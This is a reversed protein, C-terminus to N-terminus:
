YKSCLQRLGELMAELLSKSEIQDLRIEGSGVFRGDSLLYYTRSFRIEANPPEYETIAWAAVAIRESKRFLKIKPDAMYLM